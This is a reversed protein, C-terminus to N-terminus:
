AGDIAVTDLNRFLRRALSADARGMVLGLTAGVAGGAAVCVPLPAGLAKNLAVTSYAGAAFFAAAGFNVFGAYGGLYTGASRSRSM